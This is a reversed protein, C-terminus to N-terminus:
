VLLISAAVTGFIAVTLLISYVGTLLMFKLGTKWVPQAYVRHMAVALYVVGWLVLGATWLGSPLVLLLFLLSFAFAHFHLAFIFHEAYYWKRRMYLLKLILAFVPLLVFMVRPLYREFGAVITDILQQPTMTGLREARESISITQGGVNLTGLDPLSSSAGGSREVEPRPEAGAAVGQAAGAVAATDARARAAGDAIGEEIMARVSRGEDWNIRVVFPIVLFFVLSAVIYLRLPRVYRARRGILFQRTLFGPRFFLNLVTRFLRSDLSLYEDAFEKALVGLSVSYESNRQGCTSCFDGHLGTDCNRCWARPQPEALAPVAVRPPAEGPSPRTSDTDIV